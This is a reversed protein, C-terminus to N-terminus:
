ARFFNRLRQVDRIEGDIADKPVTIEGYCELCNM